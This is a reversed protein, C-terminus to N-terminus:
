FWFTKWTSPGLPNGNKNLQEGKPWMEFRRMKLMRSRDGERIAQMATYLLGNSEPRYSTNPACSHEVKSGCATPQQRGSVLPWRCELVWQRGNAAM